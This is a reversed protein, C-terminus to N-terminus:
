LNEGPAIQELRPVHGVPQYSECFYEKPIKKKQIGMCQCRQCQILMRDDEEDEENTGCVCRIIDDSKRAGTTDEAASEDVVSKPTSKRRKPVPTAAEIVNHVSLRSNVDTTSRRDGSGVPAFFCPRSDTLLPLWLRERHTLVLSTCFTQNALPLVM